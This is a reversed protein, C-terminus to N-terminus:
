ISVPACRTLNVARQPVPLASVWAAALDAKMAARNRMVWLHADVARVGAAMAKPVAHAKHAPHTNAVADVAAKAATVVMVVAMAAVVTAVTVVPAKPAVAVVVVMAATEVVAATVM